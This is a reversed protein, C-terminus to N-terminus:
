GIPPLGEQDSWYNEHLYLAEPNSATKLSIASM